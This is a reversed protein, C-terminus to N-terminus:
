VAGYGELTRGDGTNGTSRFEAARLCIPSKETLTTM